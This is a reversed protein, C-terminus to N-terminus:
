FSIHTNDSLENIYTELKEYNGLLEKLEDTTIPRCNDFDGISISGNSSIVIDVGFTTGYKKINEKLSSKLIEYGDHTKFYEEEKKVCECLQRYFLEDIDDKTKWYPNYGNERIDITTGLLQITGYHYRNDVIGRSDNKKIWAKLSVTKVRGWQDKPLENKDNNYKERLGLIYSMKGDQMKDIFAIKDERSTTREYSFCITGSMKDKLNMKDNILKLDEVKWEFM